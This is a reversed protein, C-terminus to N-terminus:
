SDSQSRVNAKPKAEPTPAPQPIFGSSRQWHKDYAFEKLFYGYTDKHVNVCRVFRPDNEKSM